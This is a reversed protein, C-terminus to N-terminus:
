DSEMTTGSVYFQSILEGLRYCSGGEEDLCRLLDVATRTGNLRRLTSLALRDYQIGYRVWVALDDHKGLTDAVFSILVAFLFLCPIGTVASEQERSSDLSCPKRAPIRARCRQWSHFTDPGDSSEFIQGVNPSVYRSIQSFSADPRWFFKSFVGRELDVVPKLVDHARSPIQKQRSAGSATTPGSRLAPFLPNFIAHSIRLAQALLRIASPGVPKGKM